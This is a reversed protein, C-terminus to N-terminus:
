VMFHEWACTRRIEWPTGWGTVLDADLQMIPLLMERNVGGDLSALFLPNGAVFTGLIGTALKALDNSTSYMNGCPNMWGLTANKFATPNGAADYGTAMRSIVDASFTNGSDAMSLPGTIEKAVMDEWSAYQAIEEAITRGLIAYGLNSYSGITNPALILPSYMKIAQFMEATTANRCSLGCPSERPIGSLQSMIQRFTIPANETPRLPSPSVSFTPVRSCVADDLNVGGRSAVQYANITAFVKTISGIRYITNGDVAGGATRDRVGNGYELINEGRYTVTVAMSPTSVPHVHTAIIKTVNALAMQISDPIHNDPFPETPPHYYCTPLTTATVDISLSALVRTKYEADRLNLLAALDADTTTAGVGVAAGRVIALCVCLSFVYLSSELM